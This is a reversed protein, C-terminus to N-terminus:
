PLFSFSDANYKNFGEVNENCLRRDNKYNNIVNEM